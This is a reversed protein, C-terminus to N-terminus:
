KEKKESLERNKLEEEILRLAEDISPMFLYNLARQCATQYRVLKDSDMKSFRTKVAIM